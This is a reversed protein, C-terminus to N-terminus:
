GMVVSDRKREYIRSIMSSVLVMERVHHVRIIDTGAATLYAIVAATGWVRDIGEANLTHGIFSKQSPGILLPLKFRQKFYDCHAIIDLNNEVTKGFGIGPDLIIKNRSIGQKELYAIRQDFFSSIEDIIWGTYHPNDQMNQPTGQMHMVVVDAQYEKAVSVMRTDFRMGSIDNIISAGAALAEEAVVAKTTDISITVDHRGAIEKIVPIVRSCETQADVPEAGPRSSEGGVDIIKAGYEAMEQAHKVAAAIDTYEGGDYFSDPTVNLIGMILPTNSKSFFASETM